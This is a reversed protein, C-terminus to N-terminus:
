FPPPAAPAHLRGSAGNLVYRDCSTLRLRLARFEVELPAQDPEQDHSERQQHHHNHNHNDAQSVTGNTGNAAGQEHESGPMPGRGDDSPISRRDKKGRWMRRVRGGRGLVGGNGTRRVMEGYWRGVWWVVWLLGLLGADVSLGTYNDKPVATKSPCFAGPPCREPTM